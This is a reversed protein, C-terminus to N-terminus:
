GGRGHRQPDYPERKLAFRDHLTAYLDGFLRAVPRYADVDIRLTLPDVIGPRARVRLVEGVLLDREESVNIIMTRRCELAVPAEAIAPPAVDHSPSATLGAPGLEGVDPPFDVACVNMAEAIEESVLNVVFEGTRRVNAATDKMAGGRAGLGLVVLPPAESFVNFFSYPAANVHGEPSLTTVLAIPRPIVVGSLLKYRDRQALDSLSIDLGGDLRAPGAAPTPADV